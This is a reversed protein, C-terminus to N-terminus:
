EKLADNLDTKSAALGPVLGFVLGTALSIGLTFAMVKVDVSVDRGGPLLDNQSLFTKLVQVGWLSLLLGVAGGAGSLLASETLLQRILRGRGAGLAARVAMEKRRAVARTLLLNAVNACAILLVFACAERLILLARRSEGVLKERLPVLTVGVGNNYNPYQKEMRLAIQDMETQAQSFTVGDKLRAVVRLPHTGRATAEWGD